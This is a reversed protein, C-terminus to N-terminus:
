MWSLLGCVCQSLLIYLCVLCDFKSGMVGLSRCFPQVSVSVRTYGEICSCKFYWRFMGPGLPCQNKTTHRGWCMSVSMALCVSISGHPCVLYMGLHRRM